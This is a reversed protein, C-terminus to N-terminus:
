RLQEPTTPPPSLHWHLQTLLRECAPPDRNSLCVMTMDNSPYVSLATSNGAAGGGHGWHPFEEPGSSVFGYGYWATQQKIAQNL